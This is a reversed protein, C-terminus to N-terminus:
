GVWKELLKRRLKLALVLTIALMLIIFLGHQLLQLEHLLEQLRAHFFIGILMYVIAYFATAATNVSFFLKWSLQMGAAVVPSLFRFKPLLAMLLISRVPHQQYRQQIKELTHSNVSGTIKRVLQSGKYSLVYFIADATTLGAISVIGAIWPNLGTHMAVYGVSMLSVEEPIPTLQELVAFWLFIGIYSFHIMYNALDHQNM